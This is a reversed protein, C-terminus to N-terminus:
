EGLFARFMWLHKTLSKKIGIFMDATGDDGAEEAEKIGVQLERSLIEFDEVVSKVMATEDAEQGTAEKISALQLCEAMTGIPKGGLALVREALEDIYENAEDYLEEFKEHLAFFHHGKIFWHYNHLKVFLVTWNAVQKNLDKVVANSM